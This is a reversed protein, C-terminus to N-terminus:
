CEGALFLRKCQLSNRCDRQNHSNKKALEIINIYLVLFVHRASGRSVRPLTCRFFKAVPYTSISISLNLQMAVIAGFNFTSVNENGTAEM